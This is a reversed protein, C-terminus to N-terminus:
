GGMQGTILIPFLQVFQVIETKKTNSLKWTKGSGVRFNELGEFGIFQVWFTWNETPSKPFNSLKKPRHVSLFFCIPCNPPLDSIKRSPSCGILTLKVQLFILSKVTVFISSILQGTRNIMLPLKDPFFDEKSPWVLFFSMRTMSGSSSWPPEFVTMQSGKVVALSTALLTISWM